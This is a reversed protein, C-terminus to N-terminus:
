IIQWGRLLGHGDKHINTINKRDDETFGSHRIIVKTRFSGKDEAAFSWVQLEVNGLNTSMAIM